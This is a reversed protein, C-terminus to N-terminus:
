NTRRRTRQLLALLGLGFMAGPGPVTFSNFTQIPEQIEFEGFGTPKFWGLNITGRVNDGATVTLQMMLVRNAADGDGQWNAVSQIPPVGDITPPVLWAQNDQVWSTGSIGKFDPTLLIEDGGPVLDAIPTGITVFTNWQFSSDSSIQDMTPATINNGVNFFPNGAGTDSSNRSEISIPGLTPSGFGIVLRDGPDSFNAYVRWIDFSGGRINVTSHLEIALGSYDANASQSPLSCFFVFLAFAKLATKNM